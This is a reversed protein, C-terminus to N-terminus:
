KANIELEKILTEESYQNLIDKYAQKEAAKRTMKGLVVNLATLCVFLAYIKKGQETM